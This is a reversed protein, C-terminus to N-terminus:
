VMPTCGYRRLEQRLEENISRQWEIEKKLREIASDESEENCRKMCEEGGGVFTEKWFLLRGITVGYEHSLAELSEGGLIRLAAETKHKTQYSKAKKRGLTDTELPAYPVKSSANNKIWGTKEITM